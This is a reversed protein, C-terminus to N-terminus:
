ACEAWSNFYCWHQIRQARPRKAPPLGNDNGVAAGREVRAADVGMQNQAFRKDNLKRKRYEAREADSYNGICSTRAALVPAWSAKAATEDIARISAPESTPAALVPPPVLARIAERWQAPIRTDIACHMSESSM